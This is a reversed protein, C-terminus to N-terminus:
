LKRGCCPCHSIFLDTHDDGSARLWFQKTEKNYMITLTSYNGSSLVRYKIDRAYYDDYKDINCENCM